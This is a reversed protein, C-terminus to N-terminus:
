LFCPDLPTASRGPAALGRAERWAHQEESALVAETVGRAQTVGGLGPAPTAHYGGFRTVPSWSPTVTPLDPTLGQHEQAAHVIRGGVVTLVSEIHPIDAEPVTFYDASLVALDAYSGVKLRGKVAEEGTLRAGGLTYLELAQERDLRNHD